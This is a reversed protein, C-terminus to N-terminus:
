AERGLMKAGGSLRSWPLPITVREGSLQMELEKYMQEKDKDIDVRPKIPIKISAQQGGGNYNKRFSNYTGAQGLNMVVRNKESNGGATLQAAIIFANLRYRAAIAKSYQLTLHKTHLILHANM